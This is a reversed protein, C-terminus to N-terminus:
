QWRLDTGTVTHGAVGVLWAQLGQSYLFLLHLRLFGGALASCPLQRRQLCPFLYDDTTLEQRANVIGLVADAAVTTDFPFVIHICGVFTDHSVGQLVRLPDTANAVDVGGSM